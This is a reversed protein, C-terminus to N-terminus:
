YTLMSVSYKMCQSRKSWTTKSAPMGLTFQLRNKKKKAQHEKLRKIAAASMTPAEPFAAVYIKMLENPTKDEHEKPIGSCKKALLHSGVHHTEGGCWKCSIPKEIERSKEQEAVTKNQMEVSM